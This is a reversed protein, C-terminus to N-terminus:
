SHDTVTRQFALFSCPRRVFLATIRSKMFKKRMVSVGLHQITVECFPQVAPPIDDIRYSYGCEVERVVGMISELSM